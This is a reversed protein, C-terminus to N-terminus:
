LFLISENPKENELIVFLWVNSKLSSLNVCKMQRVIVAFNFLEFFFVCINSMKKKSVVFIRCRLCLCM